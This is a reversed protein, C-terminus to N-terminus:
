LGEHGGLTSCPTRSDGKVVLVHRCLEKGAEIRSRALGGEEEVVLGLAMCFNDM